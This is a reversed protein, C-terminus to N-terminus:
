SWGNDDGKGNAMDKKMKMLDHLEQREIDELEYILGRKGSWGLELRDQTSLDSKLINIIMFRDLDKTAPTYFPRSLSIIGRFSQYLFSSGKISTYSVIETDPGGGLSFKNPQVLTIAAVGDENVMDQIDNAVKLSSATADTINSGIREFYDLLVLKIKVSHKQEIEKMYNRIDPVTAGSKDYFYVNKYEKQIMAILKDGEGREFTAYLDDRSLGTVNYLVKEFLRISAMDLSAFLVPIGLESNHKLIQLAIATKGAGAAAVIGINSGITIPLTKDLIKIGTGITNAKINKLFVKFPDGIEGITKPLNEEHVTLKMSRAYKALWSDPDSTTFVGGKWNPGYVQNLILDVEREEFKSEGTRLSQLEAVGSLIGKTVERPFSFSRSHYTAALCLLAINREGHRFFGNSLLWRAEDLGKPREKMDIGSTDFSLEMKPTEVTKKSTKLEKLEEPLSVVTSTTDLTRRKKALTKIDDIPMNVLEEATLPIKYLGTIQHKTNTIRVIRNAERVVPDFTTLDGSINDVITGFKDPTIYDNLSM